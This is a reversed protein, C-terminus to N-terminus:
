LTLLLFTWPVIAAAVYFATLFAVVLHVRRLHLLIGLSVAFLKATILGPGVGVAALASSMIPNAEISPGMAHVGLYTLIGDLAQVVIFVIVAVDGFVNDETQLSKIWYDSAKIAETPRFGAM